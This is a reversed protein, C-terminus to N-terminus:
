NRKHKLQRRSSQVRDARAPFVGQGRQQVVYQWKDTHAMAHLGFRVLWQLNGHSQQQIPLPIHHHQPRLLRKDRHQGRCCGGEPGRLRQQKADDHEPPLGHLQQPEQLQQQQHVRPRLPQQRHRAGPDPLHQQRGHRQEGRHHHRQLRLRYGGQEAAMRRRQLGCDNGQEM